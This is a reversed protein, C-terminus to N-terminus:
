ANKTPTPTKENTSTKYVYLLLFVFLVALVITILIMMTVFAWYKMRDIKEQKHNGTLCIKYSGCGFPQYQARENIRTIYRPVHSYDPYGQIDNNNCQNQKNYSYNINDM